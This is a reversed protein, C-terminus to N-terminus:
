PHSHIKGVANPAIVVVSATSQKAAFIHAEIGDSLKRHTGKKLTKLNFFYDSPSM